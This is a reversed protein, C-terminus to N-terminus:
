KALELSYKQSLGIYEAGEDFIFGNINVTNTRGGVRDM